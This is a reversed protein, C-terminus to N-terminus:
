GLMETVRATESENPLPKKNTWKWRGARVAAYTTAQRDTLPRLASKGVLKTPVWDIGDSVAIM